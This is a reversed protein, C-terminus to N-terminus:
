LVTPLCCQPRVSIMLSHIIWKTAQDSATLPHEYFPHAFIARLSPQGGYIHSGFALLTSSIGDLASGLALVQHSGIEAAVTCVMWPVGFSIHRSVAAPQPVNRPGLEM